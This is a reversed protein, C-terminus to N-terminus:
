KKPIEERTSKQYDNFGVANFMALYEAAQFVRRRDSEVLRRVLHHESRLTVPRVQFRGKPRMTLQVESPVENRKALTANILMRAYPPYAGPNILTNLKALWDSFEKYQEAIETNQADESTLEYTVWPSEFQLKRSVDDIKEEFQPAGMFKLFPNTHEKAWQQLRDSFRAVEETTLETRLKKETNLLIFRDRQPDFITIESPSDLFDYVTGNHFITTSTVIPEKEKGVYVRNIM